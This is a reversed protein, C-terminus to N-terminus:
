KFMWCETAEGALVQYAPVVLVFLWATAVAPLPHTNVSTGEVLVLGLPKKMMAFGPM